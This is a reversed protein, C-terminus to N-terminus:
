SPTSRDPAPPLMRRLVDDRDLFHHKLAAAAHVIAITALSYAMIEHAQHLTEYTARNPAIFDPLTVLGFWSVSFARASSMFWGLLPTIINVVPINLLATVASLAGPARVLTLKVADCESLRLLAAFLKEFLDLGSSASLQM